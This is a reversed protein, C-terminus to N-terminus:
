HVTVVSTSLLDWESVGRHGSERDVLERGLELRLPLAVVEQGHVALDVERRVVVRRDVKYTELAGRNEDM